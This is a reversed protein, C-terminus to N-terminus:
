LGEAVADGDLVSLLECVADVDAVRDVVGLIVGILRLGTRTRM